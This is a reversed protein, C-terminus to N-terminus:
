NMMQLGAGRQRALCDNQQRKWLSPANLDPAKSESTDLQQWIPRYAKLSASLQCGLEAEQLSPRHDSRHIATEAM